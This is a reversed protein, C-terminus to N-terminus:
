FRTWNQYFIFRLGPQRLSTVLIGVWIGSKRPPSCTSIVLEFVQLFAPIKDILLINESFYDPFSTALNKSPIFIQPTQPLPVVTFIPIEHFLM